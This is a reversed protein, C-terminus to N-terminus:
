YRGGGFNFRWVLETWASRPGVPDSLAVWSRGHRAYMIFADRPRSFLLNKDGLLALNAEPRAQRRLVNQALELEAPTAPFRPAPATRFMYRM